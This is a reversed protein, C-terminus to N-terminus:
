PVVYDDPVLCNVDPPLSNLWVVYNYLDNEVGLAALAHAPKNSARPVFEFNYYDFSIRLLYKAHLFLPRIVWLYLPHITTSEIFLLTSGLSSCFTNILLKSWPIVTFVLL